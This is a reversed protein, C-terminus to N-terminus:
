AAMSRGQENQNTKENRIMQINRITNYYEKESRNVNDEFGSPCLLNLEAYELQDLTFIDKNENIFANYCEYLPSTKNTNVSETYYNLKDLNKILGQTGINNYEM